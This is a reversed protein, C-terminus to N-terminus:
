LESSDSNLPFFPSAVVRFGIGRGRGFPGYRYRFACRADGAPDDWSGGRLVRAVETPADPNERKANLVYPYGFSAEQWDKGWLSRTWEWVNGAMDAAGCFANGSPFMGVASTHGLGTESMNCRQEIGQEESGWPFARADDHRAAREWEAQSPLTVPLKVQGAIWRCFALAEFWSVGVRPHNPTQFVPDYDEPGNIKASQKWKWGADTWIPEGNLDKREYGGAHVFAQYQAVTVPYRSIAFPQTIAQCDHEEEGEGM